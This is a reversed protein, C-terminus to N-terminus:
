KKVKYKNLLKIMTAQCDDCTKQLKSTVISRAVILAFEAQLQLLENRKQLLKNQFEAEEARVRLQKITTDKIHFNKTTGM